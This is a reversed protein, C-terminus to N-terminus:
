EAFSHDRWPRSISKVNEKERQKRGPNLKRALAIRGAIIRAGRSGSQQWLLARLARGM